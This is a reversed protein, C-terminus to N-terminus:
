GKQPGAELLPDLSATSESSAPRVRADKGGAMEPIEQRSMDVNLEYSSEDSDTPFGINLRNIRDPETTAPRSDLSQKPEPTSSAPTDDQAGWAGSAQKAQEGHSRNGKQWRMPVFTKYLTQRFPRTLGFVIPIALGPTVGYIYGVINGRAHSATLDPADTKVELAM